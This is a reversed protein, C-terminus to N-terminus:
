TSGGRTRAVIEATWHKKKINEIGKLKVNWEMGLMVNRINSTYYQDPNLNNLFM